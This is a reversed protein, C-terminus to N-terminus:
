ARLARLSRELNSRAAGELTQRFHATGYISSRARFREILEARRVRFVPESVWAFEERVQAEYEDFRAREAGLVALDIDCLLRADDDTSMADHQTAIVLAHAHLAVESSRGADLLVRRAWEASRRENDDRQPEYIVDHAWLAFEVLDADHALARVREFQVLCEAIHQLTHYARHPETYRVHLESWLTDTRPAFGLRGALAVFAQRIAVASAGSGVSANM